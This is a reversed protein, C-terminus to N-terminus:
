FPCRTAMRFRCVYHRKLTKPFYKGCNIQINMVHSINQIVQTQTNDRETLGLLQNDIDSAFSPASVHNKDKNMFYNRLAVSADVVLKKDGSTTWQSKYINYAHIKDKNYAADSSFIERPEHEVELVQDRKMQNHEMDESEYSERLDAVSDEFERQQRITDLYSAPLLELSQHISYTTPQLTALPNISPLFDEADGIDVEAEPEFPDDPDLSTLAELKNEEVPEPDPDPIEFDVDKSIIEVEEVFPNKVAQLMPEGLPILTPLHGISSSSSFRNEPGTTSMFPSQYNLLLQGPAIPDFTDGYYLPKNKVDRQYKGSYHQPPSYQPAPSEYQSPSYQSVPPEYQPQAYYQSSM